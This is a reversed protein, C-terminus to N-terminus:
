TCESVEFYDITIRTIERSKTWRVHSRNKAEPSIVLEITEAQPSKYKNQKKHTSGEEM